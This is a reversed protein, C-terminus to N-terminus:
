SVVARAMADLVGADDGLAGPRLRVPFNEVQADVQEVLEPLDKKLHRGGPSLFAAVVEAGEFGRERAAHVERLLSGEDSLYCLAVGREPAREAVRAALAELPRRWDPDPSGHAILILAERM